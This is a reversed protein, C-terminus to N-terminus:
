VDESRWLSPTGYIVFEAGEVFSYLDQSYELFAYRKAVLGYSHSCMNGCLGDACAFMGMNRRVEERTATPNVDVIKSAETVGNFWADSKLEIAAESEMNM